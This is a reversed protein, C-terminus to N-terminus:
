PRPGPPLEPPPGEPTGEPADPGAAPDEDRRDVVEGSVVDGEHLRTVTVGDVSTTTVSYGGAQIRRGITRGAVRRVGDRVPPVLLGLGVVDTVFGPVFILAGSLFMLASNGVAGGPLEGVRSAEALGEAAKRGARGMVALGVIAGALFLLLVWAWGIQAAVLSAVVIETIPYVVLALLAIARGM